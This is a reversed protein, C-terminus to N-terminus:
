VDQMPLADCFGTARIKSGLEVSVKSLHPDYYSGNLEDSNSLVLEVRVVKRKFVVVDPVVSSHRQRLCELGVQGQD